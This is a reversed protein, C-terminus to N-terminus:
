PHLPLHGIIKKVVEEDEMKCFIYACTDLPIHHVCEGDVIPYSPDHVVGAIIDKSRAVHVYGVIDDIKHGDLVIVTGFGHETQEQWEKIEAHRINVRVNHVFANAAHSAQAMGKGSNMSELDSRMIIYLKDM